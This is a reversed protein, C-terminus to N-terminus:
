PLAPAVVDVRNSEVCGPGFPIAGEVCASVLYEITAGPFTDPFTTVTDRMTDASVQVYTFVSGPSGITGDNIMDVFYLAAGPVRSWKLTTSVSDVLADPYLLCFTSFTVFNSCSEVTATTSVVKLNAAKLDPSAGAVRAGAPAAVALAIAVVLGLCKM